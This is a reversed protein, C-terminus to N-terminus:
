CPRCAMEHRVKPLDLKNITNRQLNFWLFFVMSSQSLYM